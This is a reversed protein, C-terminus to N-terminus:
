PYVQSLVLHLFSPFFRVHILLFDGGTERIVDEKWELLGLAEGTEV